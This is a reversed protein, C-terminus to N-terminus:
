IFLTLISEEVSELNMIKNERIIFIFSGCPNRIGVIVM